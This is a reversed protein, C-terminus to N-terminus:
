SEPLLGLEVAVLSAAARCNVGLKAYVHEVHNGATKPSIVLRDAVQRNV